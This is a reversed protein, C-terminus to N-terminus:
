DLDEGELATSWAALGQRSLEQDEDQGAKGLRDLDWRAPDARRVVIVSVKEGPRLALPTKPRILGDEYLAEVARM